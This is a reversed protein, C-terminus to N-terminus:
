FPPDDNYSGGRSNGGTAWPDIAPFRSSSGVPEPEPEEYDFNIGRFLPKDVPRGYLAASWVEQMQSRRDAEVREDDRHDWYRVKRDPDVGALQCLADFVVEVTQWHRPVHGHFMRRVTERSATGLREEEPIENIQECIAELTPHRAIQHYDFLLEVFDRTPGAPLATTDPIRLLKPM